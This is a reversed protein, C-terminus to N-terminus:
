PSRMRRRRQPHCQAGSPRWRGRHRHQRARRSQHGRRQHRRSHGGAHQQRQHHRADDLRQRSTITLQGEGVVTSASDFDTSILRHATARTLVEVEYSAPEAAATVTASIRDKESFTAKRQQFQDLDALKDVAGKFTALASKLRGIGTLQATARAEQSALRTALPQREAAVLQEVLSKVDLGSGLGTASIAM